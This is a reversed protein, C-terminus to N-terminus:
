FSAAVEVKCDIESSRSDKFYGSFGSGSREESAAALDKTAV